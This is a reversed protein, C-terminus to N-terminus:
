GNNIAIINSIKTGDQELMRSLNHVEGTTDSFELFLTFYKKNNSTPDDKLIVEVDVNSFQSSFYSVLNERLRLTFQSPDGQTEYLINSFSRVKDPFSFTQSFDSLFFHSLMYDATKVPSNVWGDTSVTPFLFKSTM